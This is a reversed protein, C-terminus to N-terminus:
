SVKVLVADGEIKAIYTPIPRTAPGYLVEGDVAFRSGHCPCVFATQDTQWAVTCGAHTCIPSVALIQPSDTPSSIVLVKGVATNEVLIQGKTKLDSITGIEQFGDARPSSITSSNKTQSNCSAIALPAVSGIGVLSVFDRRKM